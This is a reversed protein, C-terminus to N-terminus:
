FPLMLARGGGFGGCLAKICVCGGGGGHLAKIYVDGVFGGCLTKGEGTSHLGGCSISDLRCCAAELVGGLLLSVMEALPFPALVCM